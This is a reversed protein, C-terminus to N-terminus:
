PIYRLWGVVNTYNHDVLQVSSGVPWNQDLSIFSNADGSMFIAVHGYTGSNWFIIDGPQPVVTASNNYIKEFNASNTNLFIQYANGAPLYNRTNTLGFYNRLYHRILDVCQAGYQGDYDISQGVLNNAFTELTNIPPTIGQTKFKGVSSWSSALSNTTNNARVKWYYTQGSLALKTHTYTSATM